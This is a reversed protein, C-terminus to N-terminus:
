EQPELYIREPVLIAGPFYNKLQVLHKNAEIRDAYRGLLVRFNPARYGLEPKLEPMLLYVQQRINNAEERSRGSYVQIMYVSVQRMKNETAVKELALNLEQTIDHEPAVYAGRDYGAAIHHGATDQEAAPLVPRYASLDESYPVATTTPVTKRSCSGLGAALLLLAM